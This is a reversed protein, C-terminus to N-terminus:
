KKRKRKCVRPPLKRRLQVGHATAPLTDTVEEPRSGRRTRQVWYSSDKIVVDHHSDFENATRQLSGRGEWHRGTDDPMLDFGQRWEDISQAGGFSVIRSLPPTRKLGRSVDLFVQTWLASLFSEREWMRAGQERRLHGYACNFSCFYGTCYFIDDNAWKVPIGCPTWEFPHACYMCLRGAWEDRHKDHWCTGDSVSRTKNVV